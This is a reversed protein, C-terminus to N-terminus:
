RRTDDCGLLDCLKEFRKFYGVPNEAGSFSPITINRDQKLQSAHDPGGGM